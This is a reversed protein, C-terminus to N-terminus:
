PEGYLGTGDCDPCDIGQLADYFPREKTKAPLHRWYQMPTQEPTDALVGFGKCRNCIIPAASKRSQKAKTM